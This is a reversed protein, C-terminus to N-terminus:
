IRKMNPRVRIMPRCFVAIKKERRCFHFPVAAKRTPIVRISSRHGKTPKRTSNYPMTTKNPSKKAVIPLKAPFIGTIPGYRCIANSLALPPRLFASNGTHFASHFYSPVCQAIRIGSPIKRFPQACGAQLVGLRKANPIAARWITCSALRPCYRM